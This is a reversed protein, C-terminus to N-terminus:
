QAACSLPFRLPPPPPRKRRLACGTWFGIGNNQSGLILKYPPVILGADGLDEQSLGSALPVQVLLCVNLVAM